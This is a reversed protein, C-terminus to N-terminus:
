RQELPDSDRVTEARADTPLAWGWEIRQIQSVGAAALPLVVELLDIFVEVQELGSAADRTAFAAPHVLHVASLDDGDPAAFCEFVAGAGIRQHAIIRGADHRDAHRITHRHQQRGCVTVRDRRHVRSPAPDDRPYRGM